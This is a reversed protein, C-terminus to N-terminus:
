LLGRNVGKSAIIPMQMEGLEGRTSGVLQPDQGIMLGGVLVNDLSSKCLDKLNWDTM